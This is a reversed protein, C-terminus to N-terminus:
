YGKKRDGLLIFGALFLIAPVLPYQYRDKYKTGKKGTIKSKEMEDIEDAIKQLEDEESSAQFFEGGTTNAIESLVQMNMTSLVPNGDDDRKYGVINGEDDRTPIPVGSGRGFGVAYIIIEREAAQKVVEMTNETHTEGDSMLIIVRSRAGSTKFAEISKTISGAIDTGPVPIVTPDAIELNLKIAGYDITLPCQIFSEGAFYVLGVRDGKLRDLFNSIERTAKALRNPAIDQAMMSRSTDLAIMIDIGERTFEQLEKGWQPGAASLILFSVALFLLIFKFIKKDISVSETLKPINKERAFLELAAKRKKFYVIFVLLMLVPVVFLWFMEPHAFRM